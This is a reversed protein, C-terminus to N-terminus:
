ITIVYHVLLKIQNSTKRLSVTEHMEFLLYQNTTCTPAHMTLSSFFITPIPYLPIGLWQLSSSNGHLRSVLFQSSEFYGYPSEIELRLKLNKPNYQYIKIIYHSFRSDNSHGIKVTILCTCSSM